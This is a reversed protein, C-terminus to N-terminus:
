KKASKTDTSGVTNRDKWANALLNIFPQDNALTAGLYKGLVVEGNPNIAVFGPLGLTNTWKIQLEQWRENREDDTSDTHLRAEIYNELEAAVAAHHFVGEEM